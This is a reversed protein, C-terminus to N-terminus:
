RYIYIYIYLYVHGELSQVITANREKAQLLETQHLHAVIELEHPVTNKDEASLANWMTNHLRKM